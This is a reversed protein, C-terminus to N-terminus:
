VWTKPPCLAMKASETVAKMNDYNIGFRIGSATTRKTVVVDGASKKVPVQREWIVTHFTGPAINNVIRRVKKFEM